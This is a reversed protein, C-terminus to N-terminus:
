NKLARYREEFERSSIVYCGEGRTILQVLGDSSVVTIDFKQGHKNAFREIYNDATQATKTFVVHINQYDYYEEKRNQVKYADFVVIIEEGTFGQYNCMYDLLKDRASDINEEALLKLEPWAFIVNYGDVLTYKERPVYKVAKSYNDAGNQAANMQRATMHYSERGARLRDASIGKRAIYGNRVNAHSVRNIIEDIEDTGISIEGTIRPASLPRIGGADGDDTEETNQTISLPVHMYDFVEYWPVITGAGHSCFVSSSPNRKDCEPDYHRAELVEEENHCLAYGGNALSLVGEGKSYAAVEAGYTHMTAVPARGNLVAIGGETESVVCTGNMRDIDTMARGVFNEPLVLTYDYYPELLRSRAQMLGQRIARYTAQRFDGGETHKTHAKGGVITIRMDTIASGTLVGRHVREELHTRILRQWNKDLDDESVDSAFELGSGLELPDLKLHVEAYHRLPEFHGVGEVVDMITEKYTISGVDFTVPVGYRTLILQTLIETQVNGMLSVRLERHEEDVEVKLEPLEEELEKLYKLMQTHDVERPYRIAYSLVPELLASQKLSSSGIVDGPMIDNLGTVAIVRGAEAESLTQYRSGSYLRIENVKEEGLLAKVQLTGGTVKLHAQRNGKDDRSIKYCYVGLEEECKKAAFFQAIVDLLLHIGNLKLASGSIIPFLERRTIANAISKKQLSETELYEEILLSSACAIEELNDFAADGSYLNNSNTNDQLAFVVASESLKQKIDNVARELDASIMDMKNIFIVVPLNYHKLLKWLTKTHAQVGDVGSIVLIAFDLVQLTREMEASFDVHGPTDLLTLSIEMEGYAYTLEAQKSFITIGRAREQEDTDLFADKNDVRGLKRLTGTEYLLAESLTTKGADVHALIGANLHKKNLQKILEKENAM